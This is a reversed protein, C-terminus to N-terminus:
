IANQSLDEGCEPACSNLDPRFPRCSVGLIRFANLTPKSNQSVLSVLSDARFGVPIKLAEALRLGAWMLRWPVSLFVIERDMARGIALLLSRFSWPQEHAVTVPTECARNEGRICQLVAEALDAEHVLYMPQMGTGPVPLIRSRRVSEVLRGFVGGPRDGHVLGPRIVWGQLSHTIREVELKGKGYLSLCGDFASITSIFVLRRVGAERAARLLLESGRVNIAYIDKWGITDFDYACHILAAYKRFINPDVPQGLRFRIAHASVNASRSLEIVEWGEAVLNEKIRSGVYGTAGSLLCRRRDDGSAPTLPM